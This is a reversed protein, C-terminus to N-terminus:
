LASIRTLVFRFEVVLTPSKDARFTKVCFKLGV